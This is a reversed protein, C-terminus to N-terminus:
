RPWVYMIICELRHNDKTKLSSSPRRRRRIDEAAIFHQAAIFISDEDSSKPQVEDDGHIVRRRLQHLRLLPHLAKPDGSM